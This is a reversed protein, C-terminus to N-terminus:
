CGNEDYDNAECCCEIMHLRKVTDSKGKPNNDLTDSDVSPNGVPEAFAMDVPEAFTDVLEAFTDVTEASGADIAVKAAVM